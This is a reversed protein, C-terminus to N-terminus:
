ADDEVPADPLVDQLDDDLDEDAVDDLLEEGDFPEDRALNPDLRIARAYDDLAQESQGKREWAVGRNYYGIAREPDIQIAITLDDLAADLNGKEILAAGRCAHAHYLLLNREAGGPLNSVIVNTYCEIAADFGGDRRHQEGLLIQTQAQDIQQEDAFSSDSM